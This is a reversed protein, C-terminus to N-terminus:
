TSFGPHAILVSFTGSTYSWGSGNWYRYRFEYGSTIAATIPAKITVQLTSTSVLSATWGNPSSSTAVTTSGLVIDWTLGAGSPDTGSSSVTVTADQPIENPQIVDFNASNNYSSGIWRIEYGSANAGTSPPQVNVSGLSRGTITWGNPVSSSAVTSGSLVIDWTLGSGPADSGTTTVSATTGEVIQPIQIAAPDYLYMQYGQSWCSSGFDTSNESNGIHAGASVRLSNYLRTWQVSPGNPNYVTLDPSPTYEEEGTALNVPDGDDPSSGWPLKRNSDVGPTCTNTSLYGTILTVQGALQRLLGISPSQRGAGAWLSGISAADKMTVSAEIARDVASGPKAASLVTECDMKRWQDWTLHITADSCMPCKYSVGSRDAAILTVFHDAEVFAIVPKPIAILGKNSVRLIRANLKYKQFAQKLENIGTGYGTVQCDKRLQPESFPIHEAALCSEVAKLGCDPDMHNVEPIGAKAHEEHYGLRLQAFRLWLSAMGASQGARRTRLLNSLIDAAAQYRGQRFVILAKDIRSQSWLEDQDRLSAEAWDLYRLAATPNSERAYEYEAIWVGHRARNWGPKETQFDRRWRAVQGQPVFEKLKGRDDLLSHFDEVKSSAEWGILLNVREPM